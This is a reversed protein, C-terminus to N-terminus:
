KFHGNEWFKMELNLVTGILVEDSKNKSTLSLNNSFKHPFAFSRTYGFCDQFYAPLNVSGLELM